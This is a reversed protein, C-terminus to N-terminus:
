VRLEPGTAHLLSPPVRKENRRKAELLAEMAHANIEITRPRASKPNWDKKPQIHIQRRVWNIDTWELHAMEGKRVGAFILLLLMPRLRPEAASLTAGVQDETLFNPNKIPVKLRKIKPMDVLYGFQIGFKLICSLVKLGNNITAPSVKTRNRKYAELDIETIDGAYCVFIPKLHAKIAIRRERVTQKGLNTETFKLYEDCLYDFPIKKERLSAGKDRELRNELKRQYRLADAKTNGAVKRVRRGKYSFDTYGRKQGKSNIVCFPKGM